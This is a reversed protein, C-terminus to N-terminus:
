GQTSPHPRTALGGARNSHFLALRGPSAKVMDPPTVSATDLASTLCSRGKVGLLRRAGSGGAVLGM